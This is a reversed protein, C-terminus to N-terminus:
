GLLKDWGCGLVARVRELTTLPVNIEGAEIKQVSRPYIGLKEALKEALKEQTLGRGLRERRVAAGFRALRAAQQRTL